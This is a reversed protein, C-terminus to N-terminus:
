TANSKKGQSTVLWSRWFIKKGEREANKSGLAAAAKHKVVPLSGLINSLPGVFLGGWLGVGGGGGWNDEPQPFAKESHKGSSSRRWSRNFSILEPTRRPRDKM